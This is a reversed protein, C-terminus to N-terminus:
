KLYTKLQEIQAARAARAASVDSAASAAAWAAAWAAARAAAWAAARAASVDSAASAAAWAAWAAAWAADRAVALEENTAEGNAFREAVDCANVSRADPEKVLKLAERGCWVAFLRIDKESMIEPRCILWIIDEKEKVKDSFQEVFQLPTVEMDKTFGIDEPNYCPEFGNIFDLTIKKM